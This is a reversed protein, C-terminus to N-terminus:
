PTTEQSQAPMQPRCFFRVMALRRVLAVVLLVPILWECAALLPGCALGATHLAIAASCAAAALAVTALLRLRWALWSGLLVALAAGLHDMRRLGALPEASLVLKANGGLREGRWLQGALALTPEGIVAVPAPPPSLRRSDEPLQPAYDTRQAATALAALAVDADVQGTANHWTAFWPRTAVRVEVPTAVSAAVPSLQLADARLKPVMRWTPDAAMLWTLSTVPLGGLGPLGIEIVGDALPAALLLAVDVQTRGPLPLLADGAARRVAVARGDLTAAVLICDAPLQLSLAALGPAALRFRLLTQQRDATLQTRVELRHVFGAPPDALARSIQVFGGADGPSIRWVGALSEGPIAHAWHPLDDEDEAKAAAGPELRLDLREPAQLAVHQVIPVAQGDVRAVAVRPFGIHPGAPAALRGEIRV